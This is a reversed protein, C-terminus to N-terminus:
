EQNRNLLWVCCIPLFSFVLCIGSFIKLDAKSSIKLDYNYNFIKNDGVEIEYIYDVLRFFIFRDEYYYTINKNINKELDLKTKNSIHAYYKLTDGNNKKIYIKDSSKRYKKYKVLIGVEKKMDEIKYISDIPMSVLGIVLFIIWLLYLAISTYKKRKVRVFFVQYVETKKFQTILTNFISPGETNSSSKPEPEAVHINKKERENDWGM